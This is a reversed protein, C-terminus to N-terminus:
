VHGVVLIIRRTRPMSVRRGDTTVDSTEVVVQQGMVLATVPTHAAAKITITIIGTAQINEVIHDIVPFAADRIAASMLHVKDAIVVLRSSCRADQIIHQTRIEFSSAITRLRIVEVVIDQM